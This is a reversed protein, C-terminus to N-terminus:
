EIKTTPKHEEAAGGRVHADGAGIRPTMYSDISADMRDM